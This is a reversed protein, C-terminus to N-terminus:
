ESVVSAQGANDYDTDQRLNDARADGCAVQISERDAVLFGLTFHAVNASLIQGVNASDLSKGILLHCSKLKSM